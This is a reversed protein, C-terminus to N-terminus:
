AADITLVIERTLLFNKSRDVDLRVMSRIKAIAEESLSGDSNVRFIERLLADEIAVENVQVLITIDLVNGEL